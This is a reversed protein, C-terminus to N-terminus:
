DTEVGGIEIMKDRFKEFNEKLYEIDDDTFIDCLSIENDEQREDDNHKSLESMMKTAFEMFQSGFVEHSFANDSEEPMEDIIDLSNLIRSLEDDQEDDFTDQEDHLGVQEDQNDITM